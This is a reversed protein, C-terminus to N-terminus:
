NDWEGLTESWYDKPSNIRLGCFSCIVEFDDVPMSLLEDCFGCHFRFVGEDLQNLFEEFEEEESLDDYNM